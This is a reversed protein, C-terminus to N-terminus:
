LFSCVKQPTFPNTTSSAGTLLLDHHVNQLCFQKLDSAAQFVKICNLRTGNGILPVDSTGPPCLKQSINN